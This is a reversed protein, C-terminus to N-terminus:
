GVKCMYDILVNYSIINPQLGSYKMAQFSKLAEKIYGHKCFDDLLISYTMSNSAQGHAIMDKFLEYRAWSGDMLKVYTIINSEVGKGLWTKLLMKLRQCGGRRLFHMWWYM